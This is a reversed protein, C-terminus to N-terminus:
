SSCHTRRERTSRIGYFAPTQKVHFLKVYFPKVYFPKLVPLNLEQGNSGDAQEPAM